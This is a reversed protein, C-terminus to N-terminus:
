VNKNFFIIKKWSEGRNVDTRPFVGVYKKKGDLVVLLGPLANGDECKVLEVDCDM